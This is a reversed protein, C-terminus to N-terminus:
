ILVFVSGYGRIRVIFLLKAEPNVYFGGKLKAERKLRILEEQNKEYEKAYLKARNFIVKRTESRKKKAAEFDQKKALAWEEERKQKKLVSEPVVAAEGMRTESVFSSHLQM